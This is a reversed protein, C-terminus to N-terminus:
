GHWLALDLSFPNTAVDVDADKLRKGGDGAVEGEDGQRRKEPRGQRIVKGIIARIIPGDASEMKQACDKYFATLKTQDELEEFLLGTAETEINARVTQLAISIETEQLKARLTTNIGDKNSNDLQLQEIQSKLNEIEQDKDRAEGNMKEQLDSMEKKASLGTFHQDIASKMEALSNIVMSRGNAADASSEDLKAQIATLMAPEEAKDSRASALTDRLGKMSAFLRQLEDDIGALKVSHAGKAIEGGQWQALDKMVAHVKRSSNKRNTLVNMKRIMDRQAAASKGVFGEAEKSEMYQQVEELELRSANISEASWLTGHSRDKDSSREALRNLRSLPAM